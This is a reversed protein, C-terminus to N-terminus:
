FYNNIEKSKSTLIEIRLPSNGELCDYSVLLSSNRKWRPHIFDSVQKGEGGEWKEVKNGKKEKVERGEERERRERRAKGKKLSSAKFHM